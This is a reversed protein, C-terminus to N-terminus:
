DYTGGEAESGAVPLNHDPKIKFTTVSGQM